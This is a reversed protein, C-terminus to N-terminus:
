KLIEGRPGVLWRAQVSPHSRKDQIGLPWPGRLLLQLGSPLLAQKEASLRGRGRREREEGEPPAELLSPIEEM